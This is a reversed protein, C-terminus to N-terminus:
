WREQRQGLVDVVCIFPTCLSFPPRHLRAVCFTESTGKGSVLTSAAASIGIPIVIGLYNVVLGFDSFM